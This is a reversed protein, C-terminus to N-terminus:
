ANVAFLMLELHGPTFDRSYISWDSAIQNKSLLLYFWSNDWKSPRLEADGM